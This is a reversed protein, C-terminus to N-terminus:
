RARRSLGPRLVSVGSDKQTDRDGYIWIRGDANTFLIRADRIILHQEADPKMDPLAKSKEQSKLPM